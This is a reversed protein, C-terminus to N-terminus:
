SIVILVLSGIVIIFDFVYWYDKFYNKGYASLRIVMEIFFIATFIYNLLKLIDEMEQSIGVYRLTMILANLSIFVLILTDFCRHESVSFM